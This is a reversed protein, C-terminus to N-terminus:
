RLLKLVEKLDKKIEINDTKLTTMAEELKATREGIGTQNVKITEIKNDFNSFQTVTLTSALGAITLSIGTAWMVVTLLTQGKNTLNLKIM